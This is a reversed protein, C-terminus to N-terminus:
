VKALQPVHKYSSVHLVEFFNSPVYVVLVESGLFKTVPIQTVPIKTVPIKTVPIKTVPIKTVPIKTVVTKTVPIKTAPIKTGPIKTVPIKTAPMKTVPIQVVAVTLKASCYSVKDKTGICAQIFTHTSYWSFKVVSVLYDPLLILLYSNSSPPMFPM